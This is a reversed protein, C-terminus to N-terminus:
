RGPIEEAATPSSRLRACGARSGGPTLPRLLYVAGEEGDTFSNGDIATIVGDDNIALLRRFTVGYSPDVLTNIDTMTGNVWLFGRSDYDALQSSGVVEGRVNVGAANSNVGGLTGLDTAVGNAFLFAHQVRVGDGFDGVVAGNRSIATSYSTRAGLLAGINTYKGKKYLFAQLHSSRNVYGYAAVEGASNFSVCWLDKLNRPVTLRALRGRAYIGIGSGRLNCLVRGRSDIDVANRIKGGTAATLDIVRSGFMLFAHLKGSSKFSGVLRGADNIATPPADRGGIRLRSAHGRAYIFAKYSSLDHALGEDDWGCAVVQGRKNVASAWGDEVFFGLSQVGYRPEEQAFAMAFPLTGLALSIVAIAHRARPFMRTFSCLRRGIEALLFNWGQM